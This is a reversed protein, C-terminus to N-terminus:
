TSRPTIARALVFEISERVGKVITELSMSPIPRSISAACKEHCPVHIFGGLGGYMRVERLIVYMATNCLYSGASLSLEAPIGVSNLHDVLDEVPIDAFLGDPGDDIREGKAVLGANDPERSFKYNIAVKEPTIKARGPAVGVGLALAPRTARLEASILGPVRDYQVPLVVGKIRHGGVERGDLSEAVLRAPNERYEQFEEFGFVVIM